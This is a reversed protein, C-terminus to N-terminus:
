SDPPGMRVIPQRLYGYFWPQRGTGLLTTTSPVEVTMGRARCFGIWYECNARGDERAQSGPYTYDAGWIMMRKVGIFSAYALIYPVSNHWYANEPGFAKIIADLPYSFSTPFEPYANNTIIPRTATMLDRGYRPYRDSYWRLDDMVWAVDHPWIRIGTNVIWTEDADTEPEHAIRTSTYDHASPGLAILTVSAPVKGTPHSWKM